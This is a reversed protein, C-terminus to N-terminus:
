KLHAWNKGRLIYYITNLHVHFERAISTGTRGSKSLARIKIVQRATLKAKCSAEGWPRNGRKKALCDHMNDLQTGFFLHWPNWCRRNDCRHLVQTRSQLDLGKWLHASLRHVPVNKEGDWVNPYDAIRGALEWCGAETIIRRSLISARVDLVSKAIRGLQDRVGIVARVRKFRQCLSALM